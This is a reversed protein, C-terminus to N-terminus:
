GWAAAQHGPTATDGSWGSPGNIVLSSAMGSRQSTRGPSETTARRPPPSSQTSAGPEAARTAARCAQRPTDPGPAARHSDAAAPGTLERAWPVAEKASTRVSVEPPAPVPVARHDPLPWGATSPTGTEPVHTAPQVGLEPKVRAGAM